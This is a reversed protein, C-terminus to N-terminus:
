PDRWNFIRKSTMSGSSCGSVVVDPYGRFFILKLAFIIRHVVCYLGRLPRRAPRPRPSICMVPFTPDLSPPPHYPALSPFPPISVYISGSTSWQCRSMRASSVWETQSRDNGIRLQGISNYECDRRSFWIQPSANERSDDLWTTTYYLLVWIVADWYFSIM